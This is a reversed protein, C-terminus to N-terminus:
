NLGLIIWSKELDMKVREPMSFRSVGIALGLIYKMNLFYKAVFGDNM